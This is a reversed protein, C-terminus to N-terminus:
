PAGYFELEDAAGSTFAHYRAIWHTAEHYWREAAADWDEWDGFVIGRMTAATLEAAAQLVGNM